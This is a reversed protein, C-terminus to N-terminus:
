FFIQLLETTINITHVVKINRLDLKVHHSVKRKLKTEIFDVNLNLVCLVNNQLLTNAPYM